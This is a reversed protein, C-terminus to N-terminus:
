KGVLRYIQVGGEDYVVTGVKGAMAAEQVGPRKGRADGDMLLYDAGYMEAVKDMAAVDGDPIMVTARRSYFTVQWPVRTMVVDDPQTHQALWIYAAIERRKNLDLDAKSRVERGFPLVLYVCALVVAIIGLWALGRPVLKGEEDKRYALTDYVWWLARAILLALWPIFPVFYREEVHWYVCIFAGFLLFVMGVLSFLRASAKRLTVAGLGALASGAVTLVANEQRSFYYWWKRFEVGIAQFVRDWGYRLLWSRNPVDTFYISYIKEWDQYKLVWADVQETSHLPSHFLILNRAVWPAVFALAPLGFSLWSRFWTRWGRERWRWLVDWLLMIGIFLVGNPKALTLLGAWLGAWAYSGISFKGMREKETAWFFQGLALLALLTFSLDSTPFIVLRFIFPNFLTLIAAVLGVRRDFIYSGLANVVLALALELVLNPLKATFASEGLLKFFPAILLPQLLPWTEQPHSLGAYPKFFQTVYDVTFGRGALLNRAVVGNDAYDAHGIFNMERIFVFEFALLGGVVLALMVGALWPRALAKDLRAFIRRVPRDWAVVVYGVIAALFVLKLIGDPKSGMTPIQVIGWHVFGGVVVLLTGALAATFPLSRTRQWWRRLVRWILDARSIVLLLAAAGAAWPALPTVKERALALGVAVLAVTGLVIWFAARPLRRRLAIFGLGAALGWFLLQRWPPLVPFSQGAPELRVWDLQAGLIRKDAGEPTFTETQLTVQLDPHSGIVREVTFNEVRWDAGPSFGGVLVGDCYVDVWPVAQGEPRWGRARISLQAPGNWGLDPLRVTSSHKTWRYSVGNGLHEDGNFGTDLQLPTAQLYARDGLAGVDVEAPRQLQYGMATLFVALFLLLYFRWDKWFSPM